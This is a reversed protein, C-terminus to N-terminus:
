GVGAVLLGLAAGQKVTVAPGNVAAFIGAVLVVNVLAQWRRTQWEGTDPFLSRYRAFLYTGIGFVEALGLAVIPTALAAGVLGGAVAGLIGVLRHSKRGM